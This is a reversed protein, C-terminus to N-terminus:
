LNKKYVIFYYEYPNKEDQIGKDKSVEAWSEDIEPFFADGEFEQEIRTIYLRDAFPMFQEYINAGGLIYLEENRSLIEDISHLVECGTAEFHEDRTLIVNKRGPLPKGISEFTKRGMVVTHGLTTKKLYKLDAPLHWPMQNGKGIVRNKGMCAILNIM